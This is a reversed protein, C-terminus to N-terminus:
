FWYSKFVHFGLLVPLPWLLLIHSWLSLEKVSSGYRRPLKHQLGILTGGVAGTFLLATMCLMLYGNLNFGLRMGTHAILTTVILVGTLIHLWRWSFYQGINFKKIRKRLSILSALVSLGLLTFGSIQKYLNDRWLIDWQLASQVSQQYPFAPLIIIAILALLAITSFLVLRGSATDRPISKDGLMDTLLVSCSGCVTSAGTQASLDQLTKCGNEIASSLVGRRVQMCQCIVASSPWDSVGTDSDSSWLMGKHVFHMRQWPWIIKHRNVAEQIRNSEPWAGFAIAGTLRNRKFFLKRYQLNDSSKWTLSSLQATNEYEHINGISYVNVGAVKLRSSSQAGIYNSKGGVIQHAAVRAQELGPAVLGYVNERHECCEGVAYINEDSTQMSDNVKIGRGVAIGSALALDINPRIGTSIVITDCDIVKGTGLRIGTVVEDGLVEKVPQGLLVNIQRTLMHERLLAGAEEDLQQSMLHGAHDIVTVRTNLKHLGVAAELGLLGGGLVVTHRSRTRRALLEQVDNLNRFTYTGPKELGPINPIHPSSGTAFVLKYYSQRRGLCDVVQQRRQDVAVIKCNHYQTVQHGADLKLSNNINGLNMEGTLLGTLRVRNYPEWPENGYLVISLEPERLMLEEVVRIGVPGTGIVVVPLQKEAHQSFSAKKLVASM